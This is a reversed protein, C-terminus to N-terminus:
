TKFPKTFIHRFSNKGHFHHRWCTMKLKKQPLQRELFCTWHLRDKCFISLFTHFNGEPHISFPGPQLKLGTNAQFLYSRYLSLGKKVQVWTLCDPFGLIWPCSQLNKVAFGCVEYYRLVTKPRFVSLTRSPRGSWRPGWSPVRKSFNFLIITTKVM